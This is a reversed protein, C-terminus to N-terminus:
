LQFEFKPERGLLDKVSDLPSKAEFLVRYVETCIPMEVKLERAISMVARSTEVGEAVGELSKLAEGLRMGKGIMMGLRRNRSLDGTCTLVLDGMGSLGWFTELRAGMARGLRAMEMLGRNILSARANNGLGLGDSIGAAIAIVNKLAGAMEVGVVDTHSYVRFYSTYFLERAMVALEERESAVTVATPKKQAVEKAFSPGSLVVYNEVGFSSLVESVRRGSKVEIGKSLNVVVEPTFDMMSWVDRIFQVPVANVVLRCDALEKLETTARVADPLKVGPLFLHNERKENVAEAVEPERCWLLVPNGKEALLTAITTGWSGAGIVGIM